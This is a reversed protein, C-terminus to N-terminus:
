PPGGIAPMLQAPDPGLPEPTLEPLLQDPFLSTADLHARRGPPLLRTFGREIRRVWTTGLGLALWRRFEDTVNSYTLSYGQVPANVISVPMNLLRAIEAAAFGLVDIVQQLEGSSPPIDLELWNPLFAPRTQRRAAIWEEALETIKGPDLEIKSKLVSSPNGGNAFYDGLYRYAWGYTALASSCVTLPSRGIPGKRPDDNLKWLTVAERPLPRGSITWFQVRLADFSDAIAAVTDPNLVNIADVAGSTDRPGNLAYGNGTWMLSQVLKHLTDARDEDPNPQTLVNFREGTPRGADDVAYMDMDAIADAILTVIGQTIPLEDAPVPLGTAGRADIALQLWSEIASVDSRVHRSRRGFV